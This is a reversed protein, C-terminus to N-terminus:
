GESFVIDLKHISSVSVVDTKQLGVGFIGPFVKNLLLWKGDTSLYSCNLM